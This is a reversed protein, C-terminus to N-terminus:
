YAPWTVTKNLLYPMFQFGMDGPFRIQQDAHSYWGGPSRGRSTYPGEHNISVTRTSQDRSVEMTTMRRLSIPAPSGVCQGDGDFGQLFIAVMRDTFEDVEGRAKEIIEQSVGSAVLKGAPATVDLLGTLGEISGIEGLGDWLFGENTRLKGFVGVAVRKISTKFDFRVLFCCPARPAGIVAALAPDLAM